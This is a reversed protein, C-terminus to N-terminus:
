RLLTVAVTYHTEREDVTLNQSRATEDGIVRQEDLARADLIDDCSVIGPDRFGPM